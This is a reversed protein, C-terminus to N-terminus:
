NKARSTVRMASVSTPLAWSNLSPSRRITKTPFL